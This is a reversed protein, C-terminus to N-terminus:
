QGTSGFGGAGRATESLEGVNVFQIKPRPIIMAQAIRDGAKAIQFSFKDFHIKILLEGRYDSDIIGTCNALRASGNFGHGSRSFVLMVHDQPIEFALGTKFLVSYSFSAVNVNIPKDKLFCEYVGDDDAFLDFCGSGDTAYIPLKAKEHLKNVKVKM